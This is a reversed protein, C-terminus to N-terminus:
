GLQPAGAQAMQRSMGPRANSVGAIRAQLCGVLREIWDKVPSSASSWACASLVVKTQTMTSTAQWARCAREAIWAPSVVCTSRAFCHGSLPTRHADEAGVRCVFVSALQYSSAPRQLPVRRRPLDIRTREQRRGPDLRRATPRRIAHLPRSEPCDSRRKERPLARNARETPPLVRTGTPGPLAELLQRLRKAQGSDARASSHLKMVGMWLSRVVQRPRNGKGM